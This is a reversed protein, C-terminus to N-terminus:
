KLVAYFKKGGRNVYLLIEQTKLRSLIQKFEGLSKVQKQEIEEIVDGRRLGAMDAPSGPEIRAIVIGKSDPSLGLQAAIDRSLEFVDMGSFADRKEPIRGRFSRNEQSPMVQEEIILEADRYSADRFFKLKVKKGPSTGAVMNRFSGVDSVKKGNFETIIDGKRLGAREAPSDKVIGNILVGELRDFNFKQALEPTIDQINVGLWGRKIKGEKILQDFVAKAMNSPVAFGIGQYGGSRSFIATNIGVIEGKINVLPGGSNGPNIAADTQIFDEYDAIGVNARGKASVIGLTVTNSLGFPNGISLVFEGVRLEDSDGWPAVPLGKAEIKIIALDTKPDAGILKGQFSRKDPLTVRIDEADEIVHNNTIIYGDQSVTVGSGFSQESWRSPAEGNGQPFFLDFFDEEGSVTRTVSINVVSPSVSRVVEAFALETELIKESVLPTGPRFASDREPLYFYLFVGLLTLLLFFIIYKVKKM